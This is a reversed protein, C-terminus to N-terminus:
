VAVDITAGTHLSDDVILVKKGSIDVSIGDSIQPKTTHFLFHHYGSMIWRFPIPDNNYMRGININRSITIYLVPTNLRHAILQGPISGGTEIAIVLDPKYVQEIKQALNYCQVDVEEKSIRKRTNDSFTDQLVKLWIPYNM